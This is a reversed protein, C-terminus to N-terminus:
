LCPAFQLTAVAGAVAVAVAVAVSASAAARLMCCAAFLSCQVIAVRHGALYTRRGDGVLSAENAQGIATM